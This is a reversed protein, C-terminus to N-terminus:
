FYDCVCIFCIIFMSIFWGVGFKVVVVISFLLLIILLKEKFLVMLFLFVM